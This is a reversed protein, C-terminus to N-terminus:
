NSSRSKEKEYLRHKDVQYYLLKADIAHKEKRQIHKQMNYLVCGQPFDSLLSGPPSIFWEM